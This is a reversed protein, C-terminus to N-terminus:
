ASRRQAAGQEEADILKNVVQGNLQHGSRYAVVHGVLPRGALALDGVVDLVKHRVCEDDYRLPNDIPGDTDFILLDDTTVHGGLGQAVLADAEQKLLFTRAPALEIAFALPDLEYLMWQSGIANDTGYDLRYEITLGEGIAPRAEIWKTDTGCRVPQEVVLPRVLADQGRLGADVIAHVFAASSGDCGPMEAASVGIECNDVGLGALAALVHEVMEVTAGAATLVTRRQAEARHSVLAPIRPSGPLDDRVFFRGANVAAPRFEVRVENGSWYGVGNVSTPRALTYQQRLAAM